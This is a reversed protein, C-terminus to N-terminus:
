QMSTHCCIADYELTCNKCNKSEEKMQSASVCKGRLGEKERERQDQLTKIVGPPLSGDLRFTVFFIGDLPQIHPLNRYYVTKKNPVTRM